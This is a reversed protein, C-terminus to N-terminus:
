FTQKTSIQESSMPGLLDTIDTSSNLDRHSFIIGKSVSFNRTKGIFFFDHFLKAFIDRVGQIILSSVRKLDNSALVHGRVTVNTSV